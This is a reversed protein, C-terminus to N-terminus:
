ETISLYLWVSAVFLQITTQSCCSLWLSQAQLDCALGLYFQDQWVPLFNKLHSACSQDRSYFSIFVECIDKIVQGQFGLWTILIVQLPHALPVMLAGLLPVEEIFPICALKQCRGFFDCFCFVKSGWDLKLLSTSKDTYLILSVTEVGVTKPPQQFIPMPTSFLWFMTCSRSFFAM